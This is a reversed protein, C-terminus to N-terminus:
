TRSVSGKARGIALKFSELLEGEPIVWRRRRIRSEVAEGDLVLSTIHRGQPSFVHVRQRPGLVVVTKRRVDWLIREGPAAAADELAKHTPRSDERRAEAHLTRRRAQRGLRELKRALGRLVRESGDMLPDTSAQGTPGRGPRIGVQQIKRRAEALLDRVRGQQFAELADWAAEGCPLGALLNLEVRPLGDPGRCQVAQATFAVRERGIPIFGFAVQGLLDYARSMRGFVELQAAKLCPGASYVALLDKGSGEFLEGLRPHRVELLLQHFDV